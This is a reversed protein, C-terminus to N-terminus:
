QPKSLGDFKKSLEGNQRELESNTANISENEEILETNKLEVAKNEEILIENEAAANEWQKMQATLTVVQGEYDLVDAKLGGIQKLSFIVIIILAIVCVIAILLYRNTKVFQGVNKTKLSISEFM